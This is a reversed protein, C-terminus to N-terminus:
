KGGEKTVQAHIKNLNEIRIVATEEITKRIEYASPFGAALKKYEEHLDRFAEISEEVAKKLEGSPEKAPTPSQLRQLDELYAKSQKDIVEIASLLEVEVKNLRQIETLCELLETHMIEVGGNGSLTALNKLSEIRGPTM